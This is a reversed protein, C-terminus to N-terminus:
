QGIETSFNQPQPIGLPRRTQIVIPQHVLRLVNSRVSLMEYKLAFFAPMGKKWRFFEDSFNRTKKNRVAQFWLSMSVTWEIGNTTSRALTIRPAKWGVAM